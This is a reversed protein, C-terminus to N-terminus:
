LRLCVINSISKNMKMMNAKLRKAKKQLFFVFVFLAVCINFSQHKGEDDEDDEDIEEETLDGDFSNVDSNIKNVLTVFRQKMDNLRASLINM